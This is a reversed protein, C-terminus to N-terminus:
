IRPCERGFQKGRKDSADDFPLKVIDQDNNSPAKMVSVQPGSLEFVDVFYLVYRGIGEVGSETCILFLSSPFM